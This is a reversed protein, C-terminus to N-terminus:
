GKWCPTEPTKNWKWWGEGENMEPSWCPRIKWIYVWCCRHQCHHANSECTDMGFIVVTIHLWHQSLYWKQPLSASSLSISDQDCLPAKLVPFLDYIFPAEKTKSVWRSQPATSGWRGPLHSPREAESYHCPTPSNDTHRSGMLGYILAVGLRMIWMYCLWIWGKVIKSPSPQTRGATTKHYCKDPSM